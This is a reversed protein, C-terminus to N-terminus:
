AEVPVEEAPMLESMGRSLNVFMHLLAAELENQDLNEIELNDKLLIKGLTGPILAYFGHVSTANLTLLKEFLSAAEDVSVSPADMVEVLLSVTKEEVDITIEFNNGTETETVVFIDERVREYTIGDIQEIMALVKEANMIELESPMPVGKNFPCKPYSCLHNGHVDERGEKLRCHYLIYDGSDWVYKERCLVDYVRNVHEDVAQLYQRDSSHM